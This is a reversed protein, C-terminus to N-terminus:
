DDKDELSTLRKDIEDFKFNLAEIAEIVNDKHKHPKPRIRALITELYWRM